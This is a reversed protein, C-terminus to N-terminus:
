LLMYRRMLNKTIREHVLGM